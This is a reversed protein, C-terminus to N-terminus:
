IYHALVTQLDLSQFRTRNKQTNGTSASYDSASKGRRLPVNAASRVFGLQRLSKMSVVVVRNLQKLSGKKRFLMVFVFICKGGGQICIIIM